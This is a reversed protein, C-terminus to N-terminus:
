PFQLVHVSSDSQFALMLNGANERFEFPGFARVGINPARAGLKQWETGNFRFVSIGASV